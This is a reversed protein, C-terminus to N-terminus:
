VMLKGVEVNTRELVVVDTVVGWTARRIAIDELLLRKLRFYRMASCSREATLRVRRGNAKRIRLYRSKSTKPFQAPFVRFHSITIKM